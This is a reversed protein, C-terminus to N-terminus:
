IESLAVGTISVQMGRVETLERVKQAAVPNTAEARALVAENVMEPDLLTKWVKGNPTVMPVRGVSASAAEMVRREEDSASGYFVAIDQPTHKLLQSSMLEVRKPDPMAASAMLAARQELLDADINKLRTAHWETIAARTTARAKDLAAAKGDNTLNRDGTITAKQQQYGKSLMRVHEHPVMVVKIDYHAFRQGRAQADLVMELKTM